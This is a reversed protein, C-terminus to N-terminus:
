RILNTLYAALAIAITAAPAITTWLQRPTITPKSELARLRREHDDGRTTEAKIEASHQVLAVDVKGELRTFAVLLAAEPSLGATLDATPTSM